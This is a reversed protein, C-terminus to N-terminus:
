GYFARNPKNGRDNLRVEGAAVLPLSALGDVM